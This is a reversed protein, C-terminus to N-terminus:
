PAPKAPVAAPPSNNAAEKSPPAIPPVGNAALAPGASVTSADNAADLNAGKCQEFEKRLSVNMEKLLEYERGSRVRGYYESLEVSKQPNMGELIKTIQKQSLASFLEVVLDKDLSEIITAAKKPEMKGYLEILRDLRKGKLSKEQQITQAIFRREDDLKALKFDISKELGVLTAQRKQLVKARSEVEQKKREAMALYRGIEDRKAKDPNLVPLNLLGELIGNKTDITPAAPLAELAGVRGGTGSATGAEVPPQEAAAPEKSDAAISPADGFYFKGGFYLFLTVAVALKGLVLGRVLRPRSLLLDLINAFPGEM